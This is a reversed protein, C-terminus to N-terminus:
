VIAISCSAFCETNLHKISYISIWIKMFRNKPGIFFKESHVIAEVSLIHPSNKQDPPNLQIFCIFFSYSNQQSYNEVIAYNNKVPMPCLVIWSPHTRQFFNNWFFDHRPSSYDISVNNPRVVKFLVNCRVRIQFHQSIIHDRFQISVTNIGSVYAIHVVACRRM